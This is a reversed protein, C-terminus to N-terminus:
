GSDNAIVFQIYVSKINDLSKGGTSYEAV